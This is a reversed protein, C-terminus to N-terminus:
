LKLNCTSTNKCTKNKKKKPKITKCYNYTFGNNNMKVDLKNLSAKLDRDNNCRTKVNNISNTVFNSKVHAPVFSDKRLSTGSHAEKQYWCYQIKNNDVTISIDLFNLTKEPIEITFVINKNISNFTELIIHFNTDAPFPGMIIDDIYRYYMAPLLGHVDKLLNLAKNELSNMFIIAFPPSFHTGMPCGKIQKYFRDNYTIEYNYCIFKLMKEISDLDLDYNIIKQWNETAFKM